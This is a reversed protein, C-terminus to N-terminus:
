VILNAIDVVILFIWLVIEINWITMEFKGEKLRKSQDKIIYTNLLLCVHAVLLGYASFNKM